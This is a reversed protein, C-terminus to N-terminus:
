KTEKKRGVLEPDFAMEFLAFPKEIIKETQSPKIIERMAKISNGRGTPYHFAAIVLVFRSLWAARVGELKRRSMM